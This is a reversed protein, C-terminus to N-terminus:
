SSCFINSAFGYRFNHKNCNHGKSFERSKVHADIDLDNKSNEDSYWFGNAWIELCAAQFSTLNTIKANIQGADIDWKTDLGDLAIGDSVNIGIHQGAIGATLRTANFVDIILKLEAEIFIDKIEALARRYLTPFADLTYELGSNLSRFVTPYFAASQESIRPATAKM